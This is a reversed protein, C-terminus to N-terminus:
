VQVTKELVAAWRKGYESVSESLGQIDIQAQRGLESRLAADTVLEVLRQQYLERDGIPVVFGHKKDMLVENACGVDTTIVPLGIQM